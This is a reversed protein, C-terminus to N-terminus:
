IDKIKVLLEDLTPHRFNFIPCVPKTQDRHPQTISQDLIDRTAKALEPGISTFYRNVEEVIQINSLLNVQSDQLQIPNFSIQKILTKIDLHQTESIGEFMLSNKDKERRLHTTILDDVNDQNLNVKRRDQCKLNEIETKM